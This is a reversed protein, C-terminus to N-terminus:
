GDRPGPRPTCWLRGIERAALASYFALGHRPGSEKAEWITRVLTVMRLDANAVHLAHEVKAPREAFMGEAEAAPLEMQRMTPEPQM